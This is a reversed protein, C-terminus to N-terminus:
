MLESDIEKCQEQILGWNHCMLPFSFLFHHCIDTKETCHVNQGRQTTTNKGRASCKVANFPFSITFACWFDAGCMECINVCITTCPRHSASLLFSCSLDAHALPLPLKCSIVGSVKSLDKLTVVCGKVGVESTVPFGPQTQQVHVCVDIHVHGLTKPKQKWTWPGLRKSIHLM